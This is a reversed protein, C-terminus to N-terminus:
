QAGFTFNLGATYRIHHQNNDELSRLNQLRSMQWDLGIPRLSMYKTIKIDVGGGLAMAFATQQAAARLSVARGTRPALQPPIAIPNSPHEIQEWPIDVRTSTSAYMGGFLMQAYPTVREWFRFPVRPGFMFSTLTTDLQNGGINGNHVAGIDAVAGIWKGFNVVFQGGGGNASFAPVNTASNVRLYTYGIFTEVKPVDQAVAVVASMLVIGVIAFHKRM